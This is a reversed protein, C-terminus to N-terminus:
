KSKDEPKLYQVSILPIGLDRIKNLLGHLMAQDVVEGSLVTEGGPLNQIKMGEFWQSWRKELHGKIVIQYLEKIPKDASM